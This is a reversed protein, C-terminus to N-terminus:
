GMLKACQYQILWRKNIWTQYQTRKRQFQPHEGFLFRFIPGQAVEALRSPDLTKTEFYRFGRDIAVQCYPQVYLLSHLLCEFGLISHPDRSCQSM